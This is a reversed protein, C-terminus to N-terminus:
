IILHLDGKSPRAFTLRLLMLSMDDTNDFRLFLGKRSDQQVRPTQRSTQLFAALAVFFKKAKAPISCTDRFVKQRKCPRQLHKSFNKPTQLFAALAEFFKRANAPISCTGRFVKQRKCSHQM